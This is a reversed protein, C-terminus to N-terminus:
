ELNHDLIWDPLGKNLSMSLFEVDIRDNKFENIISDKIKRFEQINRHYNYIALKNGTQAIHQLLANKLLQMSKFDTNGFYFVVQKNLVRNKDRIEAYIFKSFMSELSLIKTSNAAGKGLFPYHFEFICTPDKLRFSHIKDVVSTLRLIDENSMIFIRNPITVGRGNKQFDISTLDKKLKETITPDTEYDSFWIVILGNRLITNEMKPFLEYLEDSNRLNVIKDYLDCIWKELKSRSYSSLKYHKAELLIGQFGNTTPNEYQFLADVGREKNEIDPIDINKDAVLEWGLKRLLITAENNWIDGNVGQDEAM